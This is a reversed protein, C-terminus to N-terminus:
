PRAQQPAPPAAAPAAAAGCDVLMYGSWFIPHLPAALPAADAERIRPERAADPPEAIVVDVARQWARAAPEAPGGVAARLFETILDGCTKGGMPWRSLVVTHAGAALLDTSAVFLEDGPRAPPKALGGALATALGPLLVRTPRKAPPGLWEGLTLPKAGRGGSAAVLPWGSAAGEGPIADFVVLTDCAAAALAAPVGAEGLVAVSGPPVVQRVADAMAEPDSKEGRAIGGVQLGVPGPGRDDRPMVALSRTPAYRVRCRERLLPRDGAPDGASGIPLLEFPLYWLWGDPVIVLEDIGEALTVKSNEFLMREIREASGRWDGEALREAVVPADADFLCLGKALSAIEAPLGAAQRVQWTAFRERSELLGVLGADTWRFSLLLQRPELRGRVEAATALPPFALPVAVRGAAIEAVALGRLAALPPYTDVAVPSPDAAVIAAAVDGRLSTMREVTEALEPRDGLLTARAAAVPADLTRPDSAIWRDVALRRGGLPQAALWRHRLAAEAVDVAADADRRTAVALWTAFADSREQATTALADLPDLAFDRGDLDGLLRAFLSEAVRDPIANGGARVVGTLVRTQFLRPSRRAQLGIADRLAADGAAEDGAAYAAVARAYATSCGLTGRGATAQLLRQDIERLAASAGRVDRAAACREAEIALLRAHLAPLEGRLQDCGRAIVPPVGRTGAAAHATAALAFAEELARVDGFDAAAYTAEEFLEAARQPQDADLAMRGLVILGWSTLAHDFQNGAVLGRTLLPAAADPKGQAWCTVGLAVDIWAQSWHNPPAARRALAAEVADLANAEQALPGLLAAHRYIAVVLMRVIEQPRVLRDHDAILVGGRKLVEQPDGSSQRIAITEPIAAPVTNRRSRGWTGARGGAAARLAQPPFQVTLLWDGRAAEVLMAEEYRAIAGDFDGTEFLCEGLLAASAISDIWREAGMRVSGRYERSALETAADYDGAALRELALDHEPGPVTPARGPVGMDPPLVVQAAAAAAIFVWVCAAWRISVM